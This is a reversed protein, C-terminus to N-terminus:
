HCLSLSPHILQAATCGRSTLLRGRLAPRVGPDPVFVPGTVPSQERRHATGHRTPHRPPHDAGSAPSRCVGSRPPPSRDVSRHPPVLIPALFPLHPGAARDDQAPSATFARGQGAKAQRALELEAILQAHGRQQERHLLEPHVFM